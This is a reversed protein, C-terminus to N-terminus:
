RSPRAARRAQRRHAIVLAAVVLVLAVAGAAGWFIKKSLNVVWPWTGVDANAAYDEHFATLARLREPERGALNVQEARDSELDYLQWATGGPAVAKWSGHRVARHDEFEWLIPGRERTEGELLPLLSQGRLPLIREGRYDTPYDVRAVDLITAVIDVVHGAQRILGGRELRIGAPWNVILPVAIGGELLGGKFGRFPTGSVAAWGPGYSQFTRETGPDLGPRNGFVVKEGARTRQHTPVRLLKRDWFTRHRVEKGTAGNDSLFFVITNELAGHRALAAIVEGVGRDMREVMAAHVQMRLAQWDKDGADAWRPARSAPLTSDPPLIGLELMRRFREERLVEWGADYRGDYKAVDEASAQLPWHPATYAVYLFFPRGDERGAHGDIFQVAHDTIADTFYFDEASPEVPTNDRMLTMPRFYGTSGTLTGYFRDFGRQTPWSSHPPTNGAGDPEDLRSLHWKGSMYSRYGARRLMEPVTVAHRSLEGRYAPHDSVVVPLHGVGAEHPYLGTLL